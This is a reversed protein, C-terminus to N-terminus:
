KETKIAKLIYVNPESIFIQLIEYKVINMKGNKLKVNIFITM